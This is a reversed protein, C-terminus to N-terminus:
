ISCFPGGPRSFPLRASGSFLFLFLLWFDLCSLGQSLGFGTSSSAGTDLDTDLELDTGFRRRNDLGPTVFHSSPTRALALTPPASDYATTWAAHLSIHTDSLTATGPAVSDRAPDLGRTVFPSHPPQRYAPAPSPTVKSYLPLPHGIRHAPQRHQVPYRSLFTLIPPHLSSPRHLPTRYSLGNASIYCWFLPLPLHPHAPTSLLPPALIDPVLLRKVIRGPYCLSSLSPPPTRSAATRPHGIRPAPQRPHIVYDDLSVVDSWHDSGGDSDDDGDEAGDGGNKHTDSHGRRAELDALSQMGLWAPSRLEAELAELVSTISDDSSSASSSPFLAPLFTDHLASATTGPLGHERVPAPELDAEEIEDDEEGNEIVFSVHLDGWLPAVYVAPAAPDTFGAVARKLRAESWDRAEQLRIAKEDAWESSGPKVPEPVRIHVVPSISRGSAPLVATATQVRPPLARMQPRRPANPHEWINEKETRPKRVPLAKGYVRRATNNVVAFPVRPPEAVKTVAGQRMEEDDKSNFLVNVEDAPPHVVIIPMVMARPAVVKLDIPLQPTLAASVAMSALVLVPVGAIDPKFCPVVADPLAEVKVLTGAFKIGSISNESELDDGRHELGFLFRM